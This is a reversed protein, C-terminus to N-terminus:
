TTFIVIQWITICWFKTTSPCYQKNSPTHPAIQMWELCFVCSRLLCLVYYVCYFNYTENDIYYWIWSQIYFKNHAGNTQILWIWTNLTSFLLFYKLFVITYCTLNFSFEIQELQRHTLRNFNPEFITKKFVRAENENIKTKEFLCQM